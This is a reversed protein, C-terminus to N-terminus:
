GRPACCHYFRYSLFLAAVFLLGSSILALSSHTVFYGIALTTSAISASKAEFFARRMKVVRAVESADEVARRASENALARMATLQDRQEPAQTPLREAPEDLAPPDSAVTLTADEPEPAKPIPVVQTQTKGTLRQMYQQLYSELCEEDPHQQNALSASLADMQPIVRAAPDSNSEYVATSSLDEQAQSANPSSRVPRNPTGPMPSPDLKM